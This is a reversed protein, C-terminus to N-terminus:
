AHGHGLDQHALRERHRRVDDQEGEPRLHDARLVPRRYRLDPRRDLELRGHRRRQLERGAIRRLIHPLPLRSQGVDFGSQGGDGIMTNIWKVPNGTSQWTGNDQTGGQVINVNHPSVSLSQFQLTSLGRTSAKSSQDACAVAAAQLPEPEARRLGRSDCWASVDSFLGSSRMVGGDSAEFFVFPNGPQVVLFHQDPHLGNPHVPDTGDMTMDTFSVGGDTSLM